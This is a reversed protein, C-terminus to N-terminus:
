NSWLQYNMSNCYEHSGKVKYYDINITEPQIATYRIGKKHIYIKIKYNKITYM